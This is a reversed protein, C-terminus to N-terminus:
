GAVRREVARRSGDEPCNVRRGWRASVKEALVLMLNWRFQHRRGHQAVFAGAREGPRSRGFPLGSGAIKRSAAESSCTSGEWQKTASSAGAPISAAQAAPM